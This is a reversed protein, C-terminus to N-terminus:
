LSHAELRNLAAEPAIKWIYSELNWWNVGDVNSHQAPAPAAKQKIKIKNKTKANLKQRASALCKIHIKHYTNWWCSQAPAAAWKRNHSKRWVHTIACTCDSCCCCCRLKIVCISRFFLHSAAVFQWRRVGNNGVFMRTFKRTAGWNAARESKLRSKCPM